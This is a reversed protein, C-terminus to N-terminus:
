FKPYSYTSGHAFTAISATATTAGPTCKDVHRVLNSTSEDHQVRTDVVSPNRLPFTLSWICPKLSLDVSKVFLCM